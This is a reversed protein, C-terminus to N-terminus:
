YGLRHTIVGKIGLAHKPKHDAGKEAEKAAKERRNVRHFLEDYELGAVKKYLRLNGRHFGRTLKEEWALVSIEQSVRDERSHAPKKIGTAKRADDTTFENNHTALWLCLRMRVSLTVDQFPKKM